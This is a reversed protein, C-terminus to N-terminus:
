DEEEFTVAANGPYRDADPEFGALYRAYKLPMDFVRETMQPLDLLRITDKAPKANCELFYPRLSKDVAVDIGLEGFSGFADEISATALFVLDNIRNKILDTDLESLGLVETFATDFVKVTSGSKTSTIPCNAMGFRVPNATIEWEGTEGKQILIRLDVSGGDFTLVDIAEQVIFSTGKFFSRIHSLVGALTRFTLDVLEGKHYRLRYGRKHVEVKMVQRGNSGTLGKLFVAKHQALMLKLNEPWRFLVTHPLYPRMSEYNMLKLHTDWKDFYHRANLRVVGPHKYLQSRIYRAVPRQRSKFGGGRDYLVDPLPFSRQKWPQNEGTSAYGMVQQRPWDIGRISFLYLIVGERWSARMLERLRYSLRGRRVQGYAISNIFVGVVPGLRLRSGDAWLNINLGESLGLIRAKDPHLVLVDAGTEGVITLTLKQSGAAVEVSGRPWSNRYIGPPLAAEDQNLSSSFAVTIRRTVASM